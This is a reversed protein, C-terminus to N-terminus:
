IGWEKEQSHYIENLRKEEYERRFDQDDKWFNDGHEVKFVEIWHQLLEENDHVERHCQNCLLLANTIVNRGGRGKPYVHHVHHGKGFCQQCLNDYKDKVQERTSETFKGRSSKKQVRRKHKPKSVPNFGVDM